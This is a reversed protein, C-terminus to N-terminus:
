SEVSQALVAALASSVCSVNRESVALRRKVADLDRQARKQGDKLEILEKQQAALAQLLVRVVAADLPGDPVSTPLEVPAGTGVGAFSMVRPTSSETSSSPPSRETASRPTGEDDVKSSRSPSPSSRDTSDATSIRRITNGSYMSAVFDSSSSHSESVMRPATTPAGASSPANEMGAALHLNGTSRAAGRPAYGLRPRPPESAAGKQELIVSGKKVPTAVNAENSPDGGWGWM